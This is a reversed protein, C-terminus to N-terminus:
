CYWREKVVLYAMLLNIGEMAERSMAERINTRIAEREKKEKSGGSSEETEARMVGVVGVM